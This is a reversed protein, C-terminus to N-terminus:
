DTIGAGGLMIYIHTIMDQQETNGPDTVYHEWSVTGQSLGHASLYAALKEYTPMMQDYRGHHVARVAHGAPSLGSNISGSLQAPIFDVPIAADFQYGGEQRARTIAMPQGTMKIGNANMFASIEAYAAAMARAVDVPEQRNGSTVFLIDQSLVNVREIEIQSFESIDLSEAYQKLNALGREYDGGVWRDFLLGFYRALFSDILNVGKTLDSDFFWTLQTADGQSVLKFGTDAIGQADFDLKIDIEEYPNSAVIEQWGSGVLQPDGIWSLRAGVGTDPGSVIFEAQPDREVWPSWESYYRYGNLLEFMMNAPRNISISREVHVQKPLLYGTVVFAALLILIVLGVKKM